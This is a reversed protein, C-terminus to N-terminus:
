EQDLITVSVALMIGLIIHPINSEINLKQMIISAVISSTFFIVLLGITSLINIVFTKLKYQNKKNEPM